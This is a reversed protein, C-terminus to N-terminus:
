STSYKLRLMTGSTKKVEGAVSGYAVTSIKKRHREKEFFFRM